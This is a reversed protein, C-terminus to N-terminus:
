VSLYANSVIELKEGLGFRAHFKRRVRSDM